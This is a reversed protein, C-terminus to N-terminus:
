WCRVRKLPTATLLWQWWHPCVERKSGLNMRKPSELGQKGSEVAQAVSGYTSFSAQLWAQPLILDFGLWRQKSSSWSLLMYGTDISLLLLYNFLAQVHGLKKERKFHGEEKLYEGNKWVRLSLKM